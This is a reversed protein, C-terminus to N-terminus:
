RRSIRPRPSAVAAYFRAPSSPSGPRRWPFQLLVSSGRFPSTPHSGTRGSKPWVTSFGDNSGCRPRCFATAESRLQPVCARRRWCCSNPSGARRRYPMPLRDFHDRVDERCVVSTMRKPKQHYFYGGPAALRSISCPAKTCMVSRRWLASSVAAALSPSRRGRDLRIDGALAVHRADGLRDLRFVALEVDEERAGAAAM